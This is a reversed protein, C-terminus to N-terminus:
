LFPSRGPYSLLDLAFVGGRALTLTPTTPPLFESHLSIPKSLPPLFPTFFPFLSRITPYPFTRQTGSRLPSILSSFSLPSRPPLSFPSSSYVFRPRESPFSIRQQPPFSEPFISSLLLRCSFFIPSRTFSRPYYLSTRHRRCTSTCLGVFFSLLSLPSSNYLAHHPLLLIQLPLTPFHTLSRLLNEGKDPSLLRFITVDM